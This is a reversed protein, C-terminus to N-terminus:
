ASYIRGGADLRLSGYRLHAPQKHDQKLHDIVIKEHPVNLLSLLIRVKYSNGSIPIYYLKMM